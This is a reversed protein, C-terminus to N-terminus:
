GCYRSGCRTTLREKQIRDRLESLRGRRYAPDHVFKQDNLMEFILDDLENENIFQDYYFFPVTFGDPIILGPLRANVLEGLNASKGGYAVM